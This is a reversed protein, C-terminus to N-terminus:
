LLTLRLQLSLFWSSAQVGRLWEHWVEAGFAESRAKLHGEMALGLLQLWWRCRLLAEWCTGTALQLAEAWFADVDASRSWCWRGRAKLQVEMALALLPLWRCAEQRASAWFTDVVAYLAWRWWCCAKL